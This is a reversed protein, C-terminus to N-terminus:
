DKERYEEIKEKLLEIYDDRKNAVFEIKALLLGIVMGFIINFM